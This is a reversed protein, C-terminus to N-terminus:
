GGDPLSAAPAAIVTEKDAKREAHKGDAFDYDEKVLADVPDEDGYELKMTEGKKKKKKVMKGKEEAFEHDETVLANPDM